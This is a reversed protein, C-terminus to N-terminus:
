DLLESRQQISEVVFNITPDFQCLDIVQTVLATRM